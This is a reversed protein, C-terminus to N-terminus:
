VEYRHFKSPCLRCLSLLSILNDGATRAWFYEYRGDATQGTASPASGSVTRAAAFGFQYAVDFDFRSSKLGAGISLWHRAEDATLPTYHADPLANESYIYGASRSWGKDLYYTAGFKYYWIPQWNLVAPIDRPLLPAFGRAQHITVTDLTSWPITLNDSSLLSTDRPPTM